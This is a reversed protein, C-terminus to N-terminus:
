NIPPHLISMQYEDKIFDNNGTEQNLISQDIPKDFFFQIATFHSHCCHCVCLPSCMDSGSDHNHDRDSDSITEINYQSVEGDACPIVAFGLLFFALLLTTIKM